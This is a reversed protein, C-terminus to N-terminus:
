TESLLSCKNIALFIDEQGLSYSQGALVTVNQKGIDLYKFKERDKCKALKLYVGAYRNNDLM